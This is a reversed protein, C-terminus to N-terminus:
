AGGGFPEGGDAKGGTAAEDCCGGCADGVSRRSRVGPAGNGIGRQADGEGIPSGHDLAARLWARDVGDGGLESRLHALVGPM